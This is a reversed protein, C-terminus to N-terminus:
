HWGPFPQHHIAKYQETFYQFAQGLGTIDMTGTAFTGEASLTPSGMLCRFNGDWRSLDPEYTSWVLGSPDAYAPTSCNNGYVFKGDVKNKIDDDRYILIPIDKKTKQDYVADININKKTLDGSVGCFLGLGSPRAPATAVVCNGFVHPTGTPSSDASAASVAVTGGLLYAGLFSASLLGLHRTIRTM